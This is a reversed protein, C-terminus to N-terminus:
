VNKNLKQTRSTEVAEEEQVEAEVVAVAEEAVEPVQAEPVPLTLLPGHVVVVAARHYPDVVLGAAQVRATPSLGAALAQAIRDPDAQVVPHTRGTTVEPVPIITLGQPGALVQDQPRIIEPDTPILIQIAGERLLHVGQLVSM